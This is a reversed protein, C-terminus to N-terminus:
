ARPLLLTLNQIHGFSIAVSPMLRFCTGYFKDMDSLKAGAARAMKIGDGMGTKAGRQFVRNFEAGIFEEFLERNIQFGGDALLVNKAKFKVETAGDVAKIGKCVGDEM